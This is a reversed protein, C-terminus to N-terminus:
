YSFNFCTDLLVSEGGVILMLEVGGYIDIIEYGSILQKSRIIKKQGCCSIETLVSSQCYIGNVQNGLKEAEKRTLINKM